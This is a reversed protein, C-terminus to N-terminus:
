PSTCVSPSGTCTFGPEVQCVAGCGDGNIFNGQDCQEAGAILGDGCFTTCVSPSGVCIWGPEITCMVSCGDGSNINGQDCQESSERIGNGCTTPPSVCVGTNCAQGSPCVNGCSGCNQTSSQTNVCVNTCMIQGSPCTPPNVCVGTGDCSGGQVSCVTGSTLPTSSPVGANCTGQLCTSTPLSPIDSNDPTTVLQGSQCVIQRCDGSIQNPTATCTTGSPTGQCVGGLYVDNITNPNNDNCLTGDAPPHSTGECIIVGNADIGVVVQGQPCHQPQTIDACKLSGDNNTGVAVQGPPCQQDSVNDLEVFIDFFSDIQNQLNTDALRLETFIDFFSNTSQQLGLIARCFLADPENGKKKACMEAFTKKQKKDDNNDAFATGSTLPSALLITAIILFLFLNSQKSM